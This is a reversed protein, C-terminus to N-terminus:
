WKPIELAAIELMKRIIDERDQPYELMVRFAEQYLDDEMSHLVEWDGAILKEPHIIREARDFIAQVEEPKAFPSPKDMLKTLKPHPDEAKIIDRISAIQWDTRGECLFSVLEHGITNIRYVEDDMVKYPARDPKFKFWDGKEFQAM